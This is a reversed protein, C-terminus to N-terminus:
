QKTPQRSRFGRRGFRAFVAFSIVGVIFTRWFLTTFFVIPTIRYTHIAYIDM